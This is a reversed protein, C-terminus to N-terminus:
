ALILLALMAVASAVRLALPALLFRSLLSSPSLTATPRASLVGPPAQAGTLTSSREVTGVDRATQARLRQAQAACQPCVEFHSEALERDIEDLGGAAYIALEEGSLHTPAAEDAVELSGRLALLEAVRPNSRRWM